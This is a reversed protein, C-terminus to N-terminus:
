RLRGAIYRVVQGVTLGIIEPLELSAFFGPFDVHGGYRRGLEGTLTVLDISELDLDEVFRTDMTVPTDEFGIEPLVHHLAETLETLVAAEDARPAPTTTM